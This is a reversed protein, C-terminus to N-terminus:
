HSGSVPEGRFAREAECRLREPTELYRPSHHFTTIRRAGAKRALEGAQASTLHRRMAAIDHDAAAFVAEIFLQDAERALAIIADANAPTFAVDTIYVIRQGPAVKLAHQKLLGLPLHRGEGTDILAADDDGRRVASKAANLWRGSKLGLRALGETWVNVRLAEQLAFALSPVGHDLMRAEIHLDDEELVKAAALAPGAVVRPQFAERARFLSWDGLQGDAFEAVAIAFDVSTEGLLNWDYAALKARVGDILGPPGLMRLTAPRYLQVRLLRDFGIFHDMHRHSIFVNSVRLLERPSLPTLDGLDFLLARRGFRFDVFLGPDSFPENVLRPQVLWTM